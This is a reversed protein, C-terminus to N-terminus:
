WWRSAATTPSGCRGGDRDLFTYDGLQRGIAAQSAQLAADRISRRRRRSRGGTLTVAAACRSASCSSRSLLASRVGSQRVRWSGPEGPTSGRGSSRRDRRRAAASSCWRPSSLEGAGDAARTARALRVSTSSSATRRRRGRRRRLDLGHRVGAAAFSLAVLAVTHALIVRACRADGVVVPLMPVGAAAYDDRYAIALSWFHPPTWLFLVLALLLPVPASRRRRGGGRRGAGRLQRRARRRRHELWTRRKLWVTYVVGYVFAGLFTYLAASRTSDGVLRPACRRGRGAGILWLWARSRPLAGTM